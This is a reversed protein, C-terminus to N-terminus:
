WSMVRIVLLKIEILGKKFVVLWMCRSLRNNNNNNNNDNIM